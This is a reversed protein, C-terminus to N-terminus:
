WTAGILGLAGLILGIVFMVLIIRTTPWGRRYMSFALLVFALPLLGPMFGDLVAQLDFGTAPIKFIAKVWVFYFSMAGVMFIGIYEMITRFDSMTESTFTSVLASGQKYAQTLFLWAQGWLAIVWAVLFGIPGLINGAIALQAMAPNILSRLLGYHIADGLGALPGFLGSKVSRVTEIDAGEEEMAMDLGMTIRNWVPNTLYFDMDMKLWPILEEKKPHLKKLAPLMSVLYGLAHGRNYNFTLNFPWSWLFIKFLDGQSFIRKREAAM